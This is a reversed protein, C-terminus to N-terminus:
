VLEDEQEDPYTFEPMGGEEGLSPGGGGGAAMKAEVEAIVKSCGGALPSELRTLVGRAKRLISLANEYRGQREEVLGIQMMTRAASQHDGQKKEIELASNYHSLAATHDDLTYYLNGLQHYLSALGRADDIRGKIELSQQYYAEARQYDEEREALRGMHQYIRSLGADNQMKEELQLAQEYFTRAQKLLGSLELTIGIRRYILSRRFDDELQEDIALARRFDDLAKRYDGLLFLTYGRQHYLDSLRLDDEIKLIYGEAEDYWEIATTYRNSEFAINGVLMYATSLGRLDGSDKLPETLKVLIKRADEMRQQRMLNLCVNFLQQKMLETLEDPENDLKRLLASVTEKPPADTSRRQSPDHRKPPDAPWSHFGKRRKWMTYEGDALMKIDEPRVLMIFDNRMEGGLRESVLQDLRALSRDINALIYFGEPVAGIEAVQAQYLNIVTAEPFQEELMELAKPFESERIYRVFVLSTEDNARSSELALQTEALLAQREQAIQETQESM